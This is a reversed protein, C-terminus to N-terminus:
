VVGCFRASSFSDTKSGQFAAELQAQQQPNSEPAWMPSGTQSSKTRYGELDPRMQEMSLPQQIDQPIQGNQYMFVQLAQVDFHFESM